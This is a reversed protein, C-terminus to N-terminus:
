IIIPIDFIFFWIYIMMLIGFELLWLWFKSSMLVKWKDVCHLFRVNQSGHLYELTWTMTEFFLFFSDSGCDPLFCEKEFYFKHWPWGGLYLFLFSWIKVSRISVFFIFYRYGLALWQLASSISKFITVTSKHVLTGFKSEISESPPFFM